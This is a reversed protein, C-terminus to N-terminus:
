CGDNSNIYLGIPFWTKAFSPLNIKNSYGCIPSFLQQLAELSTLSIDAQNETEIIKIDKDNVCIEYCKEDIKITLAGNELQETQSKLKLYAEIVKPYNNILYSENVGVTYNECVDSLENLIDKNFVDASFTVSGKITDNVISKIVPKIYKSQELILELVSNGRISAYAIIRDKFYVSYLENHWSSMIDYFYELPRVGSISQTSQLSQMCKIIETDTENVKKINIDANDVTNYAHRVNTMDVKFSFMIGAPEFGFYEYRQRQGGLFGIDLDSKLEDLAMAMLHKMYGKSRSYPHVSVSGIGGVKLTTDLIKQETKHLMVCAKIKGDEKAIYHEDSYDYKDSYIKPLLTKFDHPNHANSFVYNIFDIIDERDKPEAKTYTIKSINSM